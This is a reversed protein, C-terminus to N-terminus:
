HLGLDLTTSSGNRAAFHPLSTEDITGMGLSLGLATRRPPFWTMDIRTSRSSGDINEFRPLTSASVELQPRNREASTMEAQAVVISTTEEDFAFVGSAATCLLILTAARLRALAVANSQGLGCAAVTNM